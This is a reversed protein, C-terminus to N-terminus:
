YMEDNTFDLKHQVAVDTKTYTLEGKQPIIKTGGHVFDEETDLLIFEVQIGNRPTLVDIQMDFTTPDGEAELAISTDSSVCAQHIIFKYKLDKQTKKDRILTTGEIKYVDPFTDADIIFTQGIVGDNEGVKRKVTRSWKIYPTGQRLVFEDQTADTTRDMDRDYIYGKEADTKAEWGAIQGDETVRFLPLMTKADYYIVFSSTTDNRYYKMLNEKQKATSITLGYPNKVVTKEMSDVVETDYIQTEISGIKKLSDISDWISKAIVDPMAAQQNVWATYNELDTGILNITKDQVYKTLFNTYGNPNFVKTNAWDTLTFPVKYWNHENGDSYFARNQIYRTVWTREYYYKRLLARNREIYTDDGDYHPVWFKYQEVGYGEVGLGAPARGSDQAAKYVIEWEENTLAPSPYAKTSYHLAGYKNAVSIKALASTYPSLVSNLKGGWIMSMSAPSFLADTLNLTVEKGFNWTILKKNGYGGQASVKEASKELTSVKLTDLYLVPTYIKEDGFQTISYFCVDAVEKIGYLKFQNM